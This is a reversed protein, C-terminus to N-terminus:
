LSNKWSEPSNELANVYSKGGDKSIKACTKGRGHGEPYFTLIDGNKLLVSDPHGLYGNGEDITTMEYLYRMNEPTGDPMVSLDIQPITYNQGKSQYVQM